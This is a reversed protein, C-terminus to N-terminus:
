DYNDVNLSKGNAEKKNTIGIYHLRMKKRIYNHSIIKFKVVQLETENFFINCYLYNGMKNAFYINKLTISLDSNITFEAGRVDYGLNTNLRTPLWCLNPMDSRDERSIIARLTYTGTTITKEDKLLSQIPEYHKNESGMVRNSVIALGEILTLDSALCKSSLKTLTAAHNNKKLKEYIAGTGSMNTKLFDHKDKLIANYHNVSVPGNLIERMRRINIGMYEMTVLDHVVKTIDVYRNKIKCLIVKSLIQEQLTWARRFWQSCALCIEMNNDLCIALYAEYDYKDNIQKQNKFELDSIQCDEDRENMLICEQLESVIAITSLANAYIKNMNKIGEEPSFKEDGNNSIRDFWIYTQFSNLQVLQVYNFYEQIQKILDQQSSVQSWVYSVCHYSDPFKLAQASTIFKSMTSSYVFASGGSVM